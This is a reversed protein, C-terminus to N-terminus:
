RQFFILLKFHQKDDSLKILIWDLLKKYPSKMQIMLKVRKNTNQIKILKM